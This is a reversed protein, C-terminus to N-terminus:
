YAVSPATVREVLDRFDPDSRVADFAPDVNLWRLSTEGAREARELWAVTEDGDGLTAYMEAIVMPDTNTRDATDAVREALEEAAERQGSVDYAMALFARGHPDNRDIMRRAEIAAFNGDGKLRYARALARQARTDDADSQLSQKLVDIAEDYRRENLLLEGSSREPPVSDPVAATRDAIAERPPEGGPRFTVSPNFGFIWWMVLGFV